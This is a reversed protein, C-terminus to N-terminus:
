ASLVLYGHSFRPFICGQFVKILKGQLHYSNVHLDEDNLDKESLFEVFTGRKNDYKLSEVVCLGEIVGVNKEISVTM